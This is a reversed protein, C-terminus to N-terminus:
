SPSPCEDTTEPDNKVEEKPLELKFNTLDSCYECTKSFQSEMMKKRTM